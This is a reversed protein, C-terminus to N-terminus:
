SIMTCKIDLICERETLVPKSGGKSFIANIPDIFAGKAM